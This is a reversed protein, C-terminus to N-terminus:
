HPALDHRLVRFPFVLSSGRLATSPSSNHIAHRSLRVLLRNFRGVSCESQLTPALGLTTRAIRFTGLLLAVLLEIFGAAASIRDAMRVTRAEHAPSTAFSRRNSGGARSRGASARNRHRCASHSVWWGAAPSMASSIWSRVRTARLM